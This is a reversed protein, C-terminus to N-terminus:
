SGRVVATDATDASDASDTLAALLRESVAWRQSSPGFTEARHWLVLRRVEEREEPTPDSAMETM